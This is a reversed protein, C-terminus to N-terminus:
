PAPNPPEGTPYVYYIKVLERLDEGYSCLDNFSICQPSKNARPPKKRRGRKRLTNQSRPTVTSRIALLRVLLSLLAKLQQQQSRHPLLLPLEPRHRRQPQQLLSPPSIEHGGPHVRQDLPLRVHLHHRSAPAPALRGRLNRKLRRRFIKLWSKQACEQGLEHMMRLHLKAGLLHAHDSLHLCAIQVANRGGSPWQPHTVIQLRGQLVSEEVREVLEREVLPVGQAITSLIMMMTMRLEGVDVLAMEPLVVRREPTMADAVGAWVVGDSRPLEVARLGITMVAFDSAVVLRHGIM